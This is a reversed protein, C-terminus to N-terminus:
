SEVVQPVDCPSLLESVDVKLLRAVDEVVSLSPSHRGKLMRSLNGRDMGLDHALDSQTCGRESLIRKVNQEFRQMATSKTMNSM